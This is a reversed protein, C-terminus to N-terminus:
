EAGKKLYPRVIYGLNPKFEQFSTEFNKKGTSAISVSAKCM